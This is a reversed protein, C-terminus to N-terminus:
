EENPVTPFLPSAIEHRSTREGRCGPTCFLSVPLAVGGILVSVAISADLLRAALALTTGGDVSNLVAVMSAITLYLQWRSPKGIGM